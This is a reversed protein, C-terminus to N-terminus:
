QRGKIRTKNMLGEYQRSILHSEVQSMFDMAVGVLILVSTGGFYFPVNFQAILIMPLVCIASIYIAGWITMRTLVRDIYQRTKDGPRIGPIFGGGKKLNEAIDKPDFIIATYFFCFFVILSIFLINYMVTHPAFWAAVRQLTENASFSAITAPFLLLSSAFIPPIVGATNIRLPLHTSQGGFMKRGVQRKAYHIPIRRQGREMFVICGLVVAMLALVLIATFVSMDGAKILQGSKVIGGPIGAVIGSFIILSIGNGIGKETIQEGLWMILVTGATLTAITIMRFAWGADLVVPAGAPSHMNELGVAIGFGQIVTILVTAYRTYQTIKRRGAAGEEKAMRKLEPSVVQLLQIIISASIYPMIGLAFVSLNRLGGGSFMDFLGFLTNQVSAFFDALAGSDVGPVPVHVGIRYAALLLFTWFLKKRLEPLRALNEVGSLAM